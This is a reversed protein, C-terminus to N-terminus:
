KNEKKGLYVNEFEKSTKIGCGNKAKLCEKLTESIEKNARITKILKKQDYRVIHVDVNYAEATETLSREHMLTRFLDEARIRLKCKGEIYEIVKKMAIENEVKTFEFNSNSRESCKKMVKTVTEKEYNGKIYKENKKHETKMQHKLCVALYRLFDAKPHNPNYSIAANVLAEYAASEVDIGTNYFQNPDSPNGLGNSICKFAYRKADEIHQLVLEQQALTLPKTQKM